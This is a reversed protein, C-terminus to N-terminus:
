KHMCELATEQQKEINSEQYGKIVGIAEAVKGPELMETCIAHQEMRDINGRFATCNNCGIKVQGSCITLAALREAAEKYEM